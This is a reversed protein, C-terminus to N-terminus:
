GRRAKRLTTTASARERIEDLTRTVRLTAVHEALNPSIKIRSRTAAEGTPQAARLHFSIIARGALRAWGPNTTLPVVLVSQLDRNLALRTCRARTCPQALHTRARAVVSCERREAATQAPARVRLLGEDRERLAWRTASMAYSARTIRPEGVEM